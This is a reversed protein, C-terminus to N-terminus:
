ESELLTDLRKLADPAGAQIGNALVRGSRDMVILQPLKGAIYGNVLPVAPQHDYDLARWSFGLEKAFKATDAQSETMLWIVEFDPHKPKMQQYFRVMKPAFGRTIPCTSSGRLFVLYRPLANTNLPDPQGNLSNVLKGDLQTIVPGQLKLKQEASAQALQRQQQAQKEALYRPSVGAPSEVFQRAQAMLDTATPTVMFRAKLAQSRVLLRDPQVQELLLEDGPHIVKGPALNFTRSVKVHEPWLERKQALAPYTLARQKPTLKSWAQRAVELVDTEQPEAAFNVQGDSTKLNVSDGKFDLVDVQQGAQVSQGGEFKITNKVTCHAPWLEPRHALENWNLDEARAATLTLALSALLALVRM